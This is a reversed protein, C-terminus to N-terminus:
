YADRRAKKQKEYLYCFFNKAGRLKRYLDAKTRTSLIFRLIYSPRFYFKKLGRDVYTEVLDRSLGPYDVVPAQEGDQLWDDWKRTRLLNERCAYDFYRTGPFPVAGSFQVTNLPNRLAFDISARMTAETEGPLGLVFCGHVELGASHATRIFTQMQDVRLNKHMNDLMQQSGSEFGVLLLRCGAARMHKLLDIDTIDARVNVSWTCNLRRKIMLDCLSHARQRNVTFTDDEFFFEGQRVDPWNSLVWEMEAIINEPSRFRFRNGHMVQPWLCFICKFPCGRGGIVTVYPYLKGGDFYDWLDLHHWAPFPLSDLDTILPRSPNQKVEGADDRYVMGAVSDWEGQNLCCRVFDRVTYEYEGVAVADVADGADKLSERPLASVHPGVLMVRTDPSAEKVLQACHIDSYISPTTSDMILVSPQKAAALARLKSKDWHKAPFDYLEVDVGDRELVATTYALWDPARLVRARTRAAWRQTRCFDPVFPENIVLVKDSPMKVAM